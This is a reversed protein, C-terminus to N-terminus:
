RGGREGRRVVAPRVAGRWAPCFTVAGREVGRWPVARWALVRLAVYVVGRRAVGCGMVGHLAVDFWVCGEVGRSALGGWAGGDRWTSGRWVIGCVVGCWVPVGCLVVGHWM